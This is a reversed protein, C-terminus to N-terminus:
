FNSPGGNGSNIWYYNARVTSDAFDWLTRNRMASTETEWILTWVMCNNVKCTKWTISYDERSCSHSLPDFVPWGGSIPGFTPFFNTKPHLPSNLYAPVWRQDGKPGVGPCHCFGIKSPPLGSGQTSSFRPSMRNPAVRQRKVFASKYSSWPGPRSLWAPQSKLVGLKKLFFTKELAKSM